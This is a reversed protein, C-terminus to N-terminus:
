KEQMKMMKENFATVRMRFVNMDREIVREQKAFGGIANCLKASIVDVFDDPNTQVAIELMSEPVRFVNEDTAQIFSAKGDSIMKHALVKNGDNLSDYAIVIYAYHPCEQSSGSDITRINKDFLEECARLCPEDIIQKLDEKKVISINIGNHHQAVDKIKKDLKEVM